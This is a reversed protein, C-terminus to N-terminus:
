GSRESTPKITSAEVALAGCVRALAEASSAAGERLVRPEEGTLDLVTSPTGPLPGADVAAACAARIREPVATLSAPDGGGHENASTAAVCGVADVIRRAREPLEPVRVGITDPRAGTLWPYRLAPNALVLTYPGPLLTHAATEAAGGRLEPVSGLLADVSAAVLAIPQAPDRGKLEALRACAAASSADACVGYVTDTPLLVVEGARLAAIAREVDSEV